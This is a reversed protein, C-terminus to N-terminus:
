LAKDDLHMGATDGVGLSNTLELLAKDQFYQRAMAAVLALGGLFQAHVSVRQTTGYLLQANIRRLSTDRELPRRPTDSRHKCLLLYILSLQLLPHRLFDPRTRIIRLYCEALSTEPPIPKIGVEKVDISGQQPGLAAHVVVCERVTHAIHHTLLDREVLDDKMAVRIGADERLSKFM